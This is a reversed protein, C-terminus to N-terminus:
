ANNKIFNEIHFAANKDAVVVESEPRYLYNYYKMLQMVYFKSKTSGWIELCYPSQMTKEITSLNSFNSSTMITRLAAVDNASVYITSKKLKANEPTYVYDFGREGSANVIMVIGICMGILMLFVLTLSLYKGPILPTAAIILVVLSILTVVVGAAISKKKVDVYQNEHNNFYEIINKETNEM